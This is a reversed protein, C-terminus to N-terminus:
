APGPRAALWEFWALANPGRSEEMSPQVLALQEDTLEDRGLPGSLVKAILVEAPVPRYSLQAQLEGGSQRVLVLRRASSTEGGDGDQTAIQVLFLDGEQVAPQSIHLLLDLVGDRIAWEPAIGNAEIAWNIGGDPEVGMAAVRDIQVTVLAGTTSTASPPPPEVAAPLLDRCVDALHDTLVPEQDLGAFAVEDLDVQLNWHPQTM